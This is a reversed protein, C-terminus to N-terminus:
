DMAPVDFSPYTGEALLTEDSVKQLKYTIRKAHLTSPNKNNAELTVNIKVGALAISKFEISKVSVLPPIFMGIGAKSVCMGM